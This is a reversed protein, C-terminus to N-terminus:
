RGRGTTTGCIGGATDGAVAVPQLGADPQSVLFARPRVLAPLIVLPLATAATATRGSRLFREATDLLQVLRERGGATLRKSQDAPWRRTLAELELLWELASRIQGQGLRVAQEWKDAARWNRLADAPM